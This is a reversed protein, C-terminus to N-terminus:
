NCGTAKGYPYFFYVCLWSPRDKKVKSKKASPRFGTKFFWDQPYILFDGCTKFYVAQLVYTCALLKIEDLLKAMPLSPLLQSPRGKEHGSM